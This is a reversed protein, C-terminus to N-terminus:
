KKLQKIQFKLFKIEDEKTLLAGSLKEELLLDLIKKFECSPKFGAAILDEGSVFLKVDRLDDLYHLASKNKTMAYYILISELSTNEYFKYVSFNDFPPKKIFLMKLDQLIKKESKKLDFKCDGVVLFCGLYVLWINQPKYCDILRKLLSSNIELEFDSVFFRYLKQQIFLEFAKPINLSFTQIIESKLRSYSIDFDSLRSLYEDQLRLTEPELSFELRASFKLGRIIRSPDDVFSGEHLVRLLSNQLDDAGGVYDLLEGFDSHNLSLVLANVTFDRRKVDDSISVGISDVVPLHGKVPYSEIRTSAFDIELKDGFSLKATRLDNQVQLLRVGFGGNALYNAFNVADGEVTIDVDFIDRGLLLDRVVGGVLYIRVGFEEAAQSCLKLTDVVEVPLAKILKEKLNSM